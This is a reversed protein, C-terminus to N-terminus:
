GSHGKADPEDVWYGERNYHRHLRTEYDRTPISEELYEPSRKIADCTLDVFVKSEPWSVREIWKKGQYCFLAVAENARVDETECELLDRICM